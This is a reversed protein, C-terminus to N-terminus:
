KVTLEAAQVASDRSWLRIRSLLERVGSLPGRAETSSKEPQKTTCPLVIWELTDASPGTAAANRSAEPARREQPQSHNRQVLHHRRRGM